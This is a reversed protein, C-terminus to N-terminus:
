RAYGQQRREFSKQIVFSAIMSVCLAILAVASAFPYNQADMATELVLNGIMPFRMGGLIAPIVYATFCFLFVLVTGAALGPFSLPVIITWFTRLSNAGLSRAALTVNAPITHIASYVPLIMYPLSVIVLGIAVAAESNMIKLPADIVGAAMLARNVIGTRGLLSVLAFSRIVYATFFQSVVIVTIITRLRTDAIAMIFAVPYGLLIVFATCYASIRVSRFLYDRYFPDSLFTLYNNFTWGEGIRAMGDSPHLSVSLTM